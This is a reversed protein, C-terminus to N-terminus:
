FRPADYTATKRSQIKPTSAEQGEMQFVRHLHFFDM